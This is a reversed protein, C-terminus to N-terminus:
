ARGGSKGKAREDSDLILTAILYNTNTFLDELRQIKEDELDTVIVNKYNHKSYNRLVYVLNDFAMEEEEPSENSWDPRLHWERLWGFDIYPGDLEKKLLEAITTKGSGPAGSIIILDKM